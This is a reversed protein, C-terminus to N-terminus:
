HSCFVEPEKLELYRRWENAGLVLWVSAVAFHSRRGDSVKWSALVIEFTAACISIVVGVMALGRKQSKPINPFFSNNSGKRLSRYVFWSLPVFLCLYFLDVHWIQYPAKASHSFKSWFVSRAPLFM